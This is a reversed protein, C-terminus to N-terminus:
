KHSFFLASVVGRWIANLYAWRNLDPAIQLDFDIKHLEEILRVCFVKGMTAPVRTNPNKFLRASMKFQLAGLKDKSPTELSGDEASLDNVENAVRRVCDVVVPPAHILEIKDFQGFCGQRLSLCFMGLDSKMEVPVTITNGM